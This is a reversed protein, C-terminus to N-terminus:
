GKTIEFHLHRGSSDGTTGMKGIITGEAVAEGKKVKISGEVLHAYTSIYFEGNIKHLIQVHYGFGGVSGDAKKRNSPGAFVVKGDEFAEIYTNPNTTWFDCGNHHKKDARGLPDKRWGFPSTIKFTGDIPFQM